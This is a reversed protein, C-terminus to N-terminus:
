SVNKTRQEVMSSGRLQKGTHREADAGALIPTSGMYAFGTTKNATQIKLFSNITSIECSSPVSVNKAIPLRM